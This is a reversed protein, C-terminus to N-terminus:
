SFYLFCSWMELLGAEKFTKKLQLPQTPRVSYNSEISEWWNTNVILVFHYAVNGFRCSASNVLGTYSSLGISYTNAQDLSPSYPSETHLSRNDLSAQLLHSSM